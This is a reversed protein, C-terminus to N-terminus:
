VRDHATTTSLEALTRYSVLLSKDHSFARVRPARQGFGDCWCWLVARAFGCCYSAVSADIPQMFLLISHM